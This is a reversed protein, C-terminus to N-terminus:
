GTAVFGLQRCIVMAIVDESSEINSKCLTIWREHRCIEVNGSTLGGQLQVDGDRCM